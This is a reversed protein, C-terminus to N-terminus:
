CPGFTTLLSLLVIGPVPWVGVAFITVPNMAIHFNFFGGVWNVGALLLAGLGFVMGVRLFFRFPAVLASGLLYLGGLGVGGLVLLKWDM